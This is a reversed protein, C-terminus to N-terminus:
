KLWSPVEVPKEPPLVVNLKPKNPFKVHQGKRIGYLRRTTKAWQEFYNIKKGHRDPFYMCLLETGDDIKLTDGESWGFNEALDNENLWAAFLASVSKWTDGDLKEIYRPQAMKQRTVAINVLGWTENYMKIGNM